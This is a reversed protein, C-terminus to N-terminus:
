SICTAKSSVTSYWEWERTNMHCTTHMTDGSIVTNMLLNTTNTPFFSHNAAKLKSTNLGSTKKFNDNFLETTTQLDM